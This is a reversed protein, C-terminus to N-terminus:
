FVESTEEVGGNDEKHMINVGMKIEELVIWQPHIQSGVGVIERDINLKQMTTCLELCEINFYASKVEEKIFEMEIMYKEMIRM